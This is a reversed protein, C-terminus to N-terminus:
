QTSRLQRRMREFWIRATNASKAVPVLRSLEEYLGIGVETGAIIEERAWMVQCLLFYESSGAKRFAEAAARYLERGPLIEGLRFHVLGRTAKLMSAVEIADSEAQNLMAEAERTRGLNAFNFAANNLLLAHSPTTQLGALAYKLGLEYDELGTTAIYTAHLVARLSFPEDAVWRAVADAAGTWQSEQLATLTEAEFARPARLSGADMSGLGHKQSWVAQAVANETPDRLASEMLRRAPRTRGSSLEESAVVAFLESTTFPDMSDDILLTRAARMKTLPEDSMQSVALHAALLWPDDDVRGSKDLWHLAEEGEGSHVFFRSASRLVLRNAPALNLATRVSRHASVLNGLTLHARALDLWRLPNRPRMQLETRLGGVRARIDQQLESLDLPVTDIGGDAAGAIGKLVALLAPSEFSEAQIHSVAQEVIESSLGRSVAASLLDAATWNSREEV